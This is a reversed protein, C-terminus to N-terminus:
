PSEVGVLDLMVPQAVEAVATPDPEATLTFSLDAMRGDLNEPLESLFVFRSRLEVRGDALQHFTVTQAFDNLVAGTGNLTVRQVLKVKLQQNVPEPFGSVRLTVYIHSGGQLATYMPIPEGSAVKHYTGDGLATYGVEVVRAAPTADTSGDDSAPPQSPCGGFLAAFPLLAAVLRRSGGFRACGLGSEFVM